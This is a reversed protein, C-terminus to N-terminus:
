KDTVVVVLRSKGMNGGSTVTYDVTYVGEEYTNVDSNINVSGWTSAGKYYERPNFSDGKEVYVVYDSLEVKIQETIPNYMEIKVPLYSVTGTSDAVRYEGDFEGESSTDAGLGLSFKVKNSLDGDLTSEAGVNKVPDFKSGVPFRFSGSATFKPAKYDTYKVTRQARGVNGKEDVAAYVVIREDGAFASISEVILSETVDGSREDEAKVGKLLEKDSAKVSVTIEKSDCTVVPAVNDSIIKEYCLYGGFIVIAIVLIWINWNIKKKM